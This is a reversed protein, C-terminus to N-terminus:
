TSVAILGGLDRGPAPVSIRVLAACLAIVTWLLQSYTQSLFFGAVMNGALAIRLARAYLSARAWEDEPAGRGLSSVRGLQRLTVLYSGCFLALGLVGLEVFAEVFSNHIARYAGGTKGDVYESTGLGFGIPRSWVAGANRAWIASRSATSAGANYDHSLDLLTAM